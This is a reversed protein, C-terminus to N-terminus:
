RGLRSNITSIGVLEDHRGSFSRYYVFIVYDNETEWYNGDVWTSIPQASSNSVEKTVYNYSYFGQKLLLTKEYVGKTSNYEMANNKTFQNGTLEGAIFLDKGAFPQNNTPVFTFHVLAYDSQWWPNVSETNAIEMWGNLDRYLVYRENLRSGDAQVWIQWPQQSRDVKNIRESEYRFSRVDIWRYEKGALFVAENENNYELINGRIFTPQTLTVVDNLQNNKAIVVKVQQQPIQANLQKVDINMQIRQATNRYQNDFPQMVRAGINVLNNVVFVRKTFALQATDGNLFVKLLYNGSKTPMCNRDPLNAQYHVYKTLAIASLRYQNLRLQQYGKIYDFSSVDAPQWNANCLQFTYFYNKVVGDVDDFHLELLDTSQLNIIPLSLQNNQQFLKVSHINSKYIVDAQQAKSYFSCLFAVVIISFYKM